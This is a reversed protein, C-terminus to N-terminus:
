HIYIVELIHLDSQNNVSGIVSLVSMQLPHNKTRIHDRIDSNEVTNLSANTRYSIGAHKSSRIFLQLPTSGIICQQCCHCTYMEM